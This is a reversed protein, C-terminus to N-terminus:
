RRVAVSSKERDWVSALRKEAAARLENKQVKETATRPFSTVFELFRPVMYYAMNQQCFEIMEEPTLEIGARQVIMAMVEDESMESRVPFVAVDAVAPHKAIIKEVEWASINEGRRRIADKKRDSFFLYGDPDLFGRDGTHFVGDDNSKRTEDPMKYYSRPAVPASDRFCIEGVEGEPVRQGDDDLIIIEVGPRPRGASGFKDPLDGIQYVAALGFDTMSFSSSMKVNFRQEFERGFIPVPVTNCECPLHDRDGPGEPQSWLINTMSSLLNFRTVRYRRIDDWFRSASFRPALAFTSDALWAPVCAAFMANGHFLPLASYVIDTEKFGFYEVRGISFNLKSAQTALVGKSPGTTGSTYYIGM